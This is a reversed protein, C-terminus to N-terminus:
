AEPWGMAPEKESWVRAIIDQSKKEFRTILERNAAANM